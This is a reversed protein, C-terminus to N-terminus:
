IVGKGTLRAWWEPAYNKQRHVPSPGWTRLHEEHAKSPSGHDKNMGFGPWFSEWGEFMADVYVKALISAASVVPVKDDGDVVFTLESEDAPCLRWLEELDKIPPGDVVIEYRELKRIQLRSLGVIGMVARYMALSRAKHVGFIGVHNVSAIEVVYLSNWQLWGFARLRQKLTTQKSDKLMGRPPKGFVRCACVVTDGAISPSFNVEDMGIM